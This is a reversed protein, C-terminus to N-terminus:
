RIYNVDHSSPSTVMNSTSTPTPAFPRIVVEEGSRLVVHLDGTPLWGCQTAFLLVIQENSLTHGVSIRLGEFFNSMDRDGATVSLWPWRKAREAGPFHVVHKVADYQCVIEGTPIENNRGEDLWQGNRLLVMNRGGYHVFPVLYQTRLVTYWYVTKEKCTQLFALLGLLSCTSM